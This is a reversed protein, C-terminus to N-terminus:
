AMVLSTHKVVLKQAAQRTSNAQLSRRWCRIRSVRVFRQAPYVKFCSKKRPTSKWDLVVVRVGCGGENFNMVVNQPLYIFCWGLSYMKKFVSTQIRHCKIGVPSLVM